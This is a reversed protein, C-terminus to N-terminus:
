SELFTPALFPQNWLTLRAGHHEHVWDLVTNVILSLEPVPRAFRQILDFYRCLNALRRLLICLGEIADSVTGHPCRFRASVHLTEAVLPIDEKEFRFEAKCESSDLFDLSFPEFEWYPNM